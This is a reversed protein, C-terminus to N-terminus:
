VITSGFVPFQDRLQELQPAQIKSMYADTTKLSTHDFLTQITKAHVGARILNEACTDKLGYFQVSSPFGLRHAIERFHEAIRTPAIKVRGPCFGKSCLQLEPDRGQLYQQLESRFVAPIPLIRTRDNKAITGPVTILGTDLNVHKVQLMCIEKPRIAFYYCYMSTIYFDPDETQLYERYRIQQDRTWPSKLKEEARKKKLEAFPNDRIYSNKKLTNFFSKYDILYGNYTTNSIQQNLYVDNMYELAMEATFEFCMIDSKKRRRLWENLRAIRNRFNALSSKECERIRLQLVFDLAKCLPEYMKRSSGASIFPNWGQDLLKNVERAAAEARRIRLQLSKYRNFYRRVRTKVRTEPHTCYFEILVRSGSQHVEAYEFEFM